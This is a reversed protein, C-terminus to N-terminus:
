QTHSTNLQTVQREPYLYGSTGKAKHNSDTQNM